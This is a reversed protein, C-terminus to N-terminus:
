ERYIRNISNYSTHLDACMHLVACNPLRYHAIDCVMSFSQLVSKRFGKRLRVLLFDLKFLNFSELYLTTRFEPM